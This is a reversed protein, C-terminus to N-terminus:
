KSQKIWIIEKNYLNKIAAIILYLQMTIWTRYPKITLLLIGIGIAIISTPNHHLTASTLLLITALPLLWPNVLHIYSEVLLIKKFQKPARRIEPIIKTFHQILHQARRIRWSTYGRSPVREYVWLDEPIVARYGLLAIRTATYSDDAGIDVPFGGIRELLDKKFVALEGHFVPTAWAKSEAIRLINYYQRYGEEVGMVGPKLPKKLCSVAGVLPDSLISIARSLADRPWIADADAIVVVDGSAYRLANNLAYAKGRRDEESIIKLEIDHHNYSWERVIDITGDSSMSDVVIVELLDRPYDQSYINDLRERIVGAENYTPIVISVKPKYVDSISLNWPKELLRFRAYLYYAIPVIFHVGVLVLAISLIPDFRLDM